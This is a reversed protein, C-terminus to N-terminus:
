WPNGNCIFKATPGEVVWLTSVFDMWIRCSFWFCRFFTFYTQITLEQKGSNHAFICFLSYSTLIYIKPINFISKFFVKFFFYSVVYLIAKSYELCDLYPLWKTSLKKWNQLLGWKQKKTTTFVLAMDILDCILKKEAVPVGHSPLYFQGALSLFLRM